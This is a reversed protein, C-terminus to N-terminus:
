KNNIKSLIGISPGDELTLFYVQNEEDYEIDRVRETIKYRTFNEMKNEVLNVDIDFIQRGYLTTVFFSDNDKFHNIEVDSIGIGGFFGVYQYFLPEKMGYNKHSSHLPAIGGLDEYNEPYWHKGYSSIPWGFNQSKDIEILNIEDGGVPGHETEILFNSNKTMALGQPNRHGKSVIKFNGDELNILIVKGLYSEDDQAKTWNRFDGTSLFIQKNNYNVLKGGAVMANYFPYDTRMVCDDNSYFYEFDLFEFNFDASVIEVNVCDKSKENVFSVYIKNNVILVDRTSEWWDAWGYQFNEDRQFLFKNNAIDKFNSQILKFQFNGEIVNKKNAYSIFGSGHLYVLKDEFSELYGISKGGSRQYELWYCCISFTDLQYKDEFKLRTRVESKFSNYSLLITDLNPYFEYINTEGGILNMELNPYYDIPKNNKESENKLPESIQGDEQGTTFLLNFFTLIIVVIFKSHKFKSTINLLLFLILPFLLTGILINLRSVTYIRLFYFVITVTFLNILYISFIQYIKSEIKEQYKLLLKILFLNFFAILLSIYSRAYLLNDINIFRSVDDVFLKSSYNSSYEFILESFLFSTSFIIIFKMM